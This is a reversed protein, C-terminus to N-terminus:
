NAYQSMLLAQASQVKQGNKIVRHYQGDQELTWANRTDYLYALLCEDIVRRRLVPDVVPWCLEIRRNMNRSMWDASGLYLDKADGAEFYFVRSHELFRGIISRVRINDTQGPVVAPLMCAGRVILDIQAGKQGARILAHILSPDTLANMKVVIRAGLGALAADGVQEIKEIMKRQMHFPAIILKSMRNLRSPSALHVFLRDMDATITADCTLYSL